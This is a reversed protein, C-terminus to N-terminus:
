DIQLLTCCPDVNAPERIPAHKREGELLGLQRCCVATRERTEDSGCAMWDFGDGDM